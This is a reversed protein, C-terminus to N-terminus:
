DPTTFGNGGSITWSVPFESFESLIPNPHRGHGTFDAGALWPVQKSPFQPSNFQQGIGQNHPRCFGVPNAL